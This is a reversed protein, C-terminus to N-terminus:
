GGAVPSSGSASWKLFRKDNNLRTAYDINAYLGAPIGASDDLYRIRTVSAWDRRVVTGVTQRARQMKSVFEAKSFKTKVFASASDWLEGSRDEDIQRLGNLGAQILEDASTGEQALACSAALTFVCAALLRLFFQQM